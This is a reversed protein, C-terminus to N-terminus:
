PLPLATVTEQGREDKYEDATGQGTESDPYPIEKPDEGLGGSREDFSAIIIVRDKM